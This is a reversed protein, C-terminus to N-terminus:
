KTVRRPEDDVAFCFDLVELRADRVMSDKSCSTGLLRPWVGLLVMIRPDM